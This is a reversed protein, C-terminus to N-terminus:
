TFHGELFRRGKMTIAYFKSPRRLGQTSRSSVIKVYEEAILGRLAKSLTGLALGTSRALEAQTVAIPAEWKTEYESPYEALRRLVRCESCPFLRQYGMM